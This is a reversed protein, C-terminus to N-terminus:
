PLRPYSEFAEVIRPIEDVHNPWHPSFRLCGDPLACAIGSAVLHAHIDVPDVGDPVQFSLIGSRREVDPTRLSILGRQTLEPELVDHWRQIHEFIRRPTLENLLSISAGLAAYGATNITGSELVDIGTRLPRDYSLHGPGEFLFQVPRTHSLWGGLHMRLERSRHPPCYLGGVGEPAMLWKHGGFAMYDIGALELPLAGVAQIGDM